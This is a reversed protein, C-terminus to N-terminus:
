RRTLCQGALGVEVDHEGVDLHRSFGPELQDALQALQPGVRRDHQHGREAADVGRDVRHARARETVRGLRELGLLHDAGHLARTSRRATSSAFRLSRPVAAFALKLSSIPSLGDIRLTNEIMRRAACTSALTSIV